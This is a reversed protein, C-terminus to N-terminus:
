SHRERRGAAWRLDEWRAVRALPLNHVEERLRLVAEQRARVAEQRQRVVVLVARQVARQRAEPLGQVEEKLLLVAEPLGQVEEQPGQLVGRLRATCGRVLAALPLGQCGQSGAVVASLPLHPEPHNPGEPCPHGTVM